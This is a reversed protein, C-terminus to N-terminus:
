MSIKIQKTKQWAIIIHKKIKLNKSNENEKKLKALFDPLPDIVNYEIYNELNKLLIKIFNRDAGIDLVKIKNLKEM